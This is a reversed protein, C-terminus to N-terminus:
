RVTNPALQSVEGSGSEEKEESDGQRGTIDRERSM